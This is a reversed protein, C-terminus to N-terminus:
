SEFLCWQCKFCGNPEVSSACSARAEQESRVMTWVDPHISSRWSDLLRSGASSTAMCHMCTVSAQTQSLPKSSITPCRGFRSKVASHHDSARMCSALGMGVNSSLTVASIHHWSVILDLELV